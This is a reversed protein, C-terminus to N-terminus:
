SEGAALERADWDIRITPQPATSVLLEDRLAGLRDRESASGEATIDGWSFLQMNREMTREVAAVADPAQRRDSARDKQAGENQYANKEPDTDRAPSGHQHVVLDRTVGASGRDAIDAEVSQM